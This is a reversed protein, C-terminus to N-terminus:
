TGAGWGMVRRIACPFPVRESVIGNSAGSGCWRTHHEIAMVLWRFISGIIVDWM